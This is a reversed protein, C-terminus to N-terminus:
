FFEQDAVPTLLYRLNDKSKYTMDERKKRENGRETNERKTKKTM